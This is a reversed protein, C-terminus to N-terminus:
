HIQKNRIIGHLIGDALVTKKVKHLMHAVCVKTVVLKLLLLFCKMHWKTCKLVYYMYKM